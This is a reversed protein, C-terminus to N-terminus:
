QKEDHLQEGAKKLAEGAAAKMADKLSDSNLMEMAKEAEQLEQESAGGEKIKEMGTKMLTNKDFAVKWQGEEKKLKFDTKDKGDVTVTITAENGNIIPEGFEVKQKAVEEKLSDQNVPAMTMGMKMMDLMGKSDKTAYKAAEDMNMMRLAEFFSKAVSKPDGGGTSSCAALVLMAVAVLPLFMKKM